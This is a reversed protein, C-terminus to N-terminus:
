VPKTAAILVPANNYEAELKKRVNWDWDLNYDREIDTIVFPRAEGMIAVTQGENIAVRPPQKLLVLLNKEGILKDEDLEFLVPNQMNEVEGM